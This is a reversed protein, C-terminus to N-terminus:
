GDLGVWGLWGLGVRLAAGFLGEECAGPPTGGGLAAELLDIAPTYGARRMSFEIM